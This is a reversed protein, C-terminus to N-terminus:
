IIFNFKKFFLNRSVSEAGSGPCTASGQPDQDPDVVSTKLDDAYLPINSATSHIRIRVWLSGFSKGSGSGFGYSSPKPDPDVNM